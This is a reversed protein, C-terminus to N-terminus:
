GIDTSKQIKRGTKTVFSHQKGRIKFDSMAEKETEEEV